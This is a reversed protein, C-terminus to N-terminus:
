KKEEHIEKLFKKDLNVQEFVKYRMWIGMIGGPFVITVLIFLGGLIYLWGEPFIGSSFTKIGSVVIAGIIAGILTGRGGVAVWIVMEISFFIGFTAPSVIGIQPVFLAGALGMIGASLTFIFVKYRVTNYGLFKLRNEGDRIAVLIKGLQSSLMWEILLYVGILVVVTILFLGRITDSSGLPHGFLSQFDTIGSSGGTYSQQAIFVLSFVLALAETLISFYVGKINSRFIPVSIIIALLMPLIIAMPLALWAHAFLSLFYPVSKFGSWVMFDPLAGTQLKLYMAMCYAGLSFFVGQGLSLIGTYGWIIDIGVAIIAFVFYKGFLNVYYIPLFLVAGAIIVLFIVILNKRIFNEM